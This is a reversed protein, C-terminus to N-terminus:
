SVVMLLKRDIMYFGGPFQRYSGLNKYNYEETRGILMRQFLTIKRKKVLDILDNHLGAMMQIEDNLRELEVMTTFGAEINYPRGNLTGFSPLWAPPDIWVM